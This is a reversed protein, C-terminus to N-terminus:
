VLVIIISFMLSMISPYGHRSFNGILAFYCIGILGGPLLHLLLSKGVSHQDIVADKELTM